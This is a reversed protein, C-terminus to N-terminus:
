RKWSGKIPAFSFRHLPLPGFKQIAARHITTGYGQHQGFGYHPHLADLRAMLRDRTVKAIISAAAISAIKTDGKIIAQVSVNKHCSKLGATEHGDVLVLSPPLALGSACRRMALHTAERINLADIEQPSAMAISVSHAKALIIDYLANRRAKTLLKSDALGDPVDDLDLIVAAAVVPGALPGRGAEDIGAILGPRGDMIIRENAGDLIARRGSM